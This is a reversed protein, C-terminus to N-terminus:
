ACDYQIFMFCEITAKAWGKVELPQANMHREKKMILICQIRYQVPGLKVSYVTYYIMLILTTHM